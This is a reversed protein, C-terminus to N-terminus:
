GEKFIPKVNDIFSEVMRPVDRKDLKSCVDYGLKTNRLYIEFSIDLMMSGVSKGKGLSIEKLDLEGDTKKKIQFTCMDVTGDAIRIYTTLSEM